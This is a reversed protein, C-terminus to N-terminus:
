DPTLAVMEAVRRFGTDRNVRSAADWLKQAADQLEGQTDFYLEGVEIDGLKDLGSLDPPPEAM